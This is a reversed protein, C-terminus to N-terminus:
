RPTGVAADHRPPMREIRRRFPPLADLLSRGYSRTVLRRDLITVRGSDEESRILRGCAQILRLSADPVSIEMFPNRGRSELWEAYTADVPSDPVSFPIKAIIVHECQAGPLDVGETFSALGFIVSGEGAAIRERHTDLIVAKPQEGQRLVLTQLTPPLRQYVTDLQWGASFLVLTGRSPDIIEPLLRVVEDTHASPDRPDATMWPIVLEARSRYDFPSALRLFQTGDDDRLGSTMRLRDFRGLATLTASTVVAGACVEWLSRRLVGAPAIMSAALLFDMDARDAQGTREIWRATPPAEAPDTTAMMRWLTRFSELRASTFGLEPLM